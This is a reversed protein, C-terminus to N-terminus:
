LLIGEEEAIMASWTLWLARAYQRKPGSPIFDFQQPDVPDAGMSQLFDMIKGAAPKNHRCAMNIAYCTYDYKTQMLTDSHGDMFYIIHSQGDWLTNNITHDIVDAMLKM